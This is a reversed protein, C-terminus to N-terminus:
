PKDQACAAGIISVAADIASEEVTLPPFLGLVSGMARTLLGHEALRARLPEAEGVCTLGQMLGLGSMASLAEPRMSILARLRDELRWSRSQVRDLFDPETLADMLVHATQLAERDLLPRSGPAGRAVRQTVILVALPSGTDPRHVVIMADPTVGTWEHAWLMGSRGFGCFSEDFVLILGYEDAIERLRVLHEGPLVHFGRQTLVPAIVIGATRNDIETLVAGPADTRLLAVEEDGELGPPPGAGAEAQGVCVLLRRRRPRGAIRHYLRITEVACRWAEAEAPLFFARDGFSAAAFKACLEEHLRFNDSPASLAEKGPATGDRDEISGLSSGAFDM